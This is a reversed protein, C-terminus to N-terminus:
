EADVALQLPTLDETTWYTKTLMIRLHDQNRKISDAISEPSENVPPTAIYENILNVSDLCASYHRAIGEPSEFPIPTVQESM